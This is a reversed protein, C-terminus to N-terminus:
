RNCVQEKFISRLAYKSAPDTDKRKNVRKAWSCITTCNKFLAKIPDVQFCKKKVQIKASLAKSKQLTPYIQKVLDLNAYKSFFPNKNVLEHLLAASKVDENEYGITLLDIAALMADDSNMLSSDTIKGDILLTAAIDCGRSPDSNCGQLAFEYSTDFEEKTYEQIALKYAVISHELCKNTLDDYDVDFDDYDNKNYELFDSYDQCPLRHNLRKEIFIKVSDVDKRAIKLLQKMSKKAVKLDCKNISFKQAEQITEIPINLVDNNKTAYNLAECNDFISAIMFENALKGGGKMSSLDKIFSKSYPIKQLSKIVRPTILEGEHEHTLLDLRYTVYFKAIIESDITEWDIYEIVYAIDRYSQAFDYFKKNAILNIELGLEQGVISANMPNSVIFDMAKKFHKKPNNEFKRLLSAIDVDENKELSEILQSAYKKSRPFGESGNNWWEYAIPQAIPDGAEAALACAANNGGSTKKPKSFLDKKSSKNEISGCFSSDYGYKKIQKIFTEKQLTNAKNKFDPIKAVLPMLDIDKVKLMRNSALLFASTQGNDFAKLFYSSANGDLYNRAICRGVKLFNKKNKKNYRVCSKKSIEGSSAIRLTTVKKSCKSSGRLKECQEYYALAKSKNESTYKGDEYNEALFMVSKLYDAKASLKIFNIGKSINEKASGRGDVLIKGIIFSSEPDGALADAYGARYASDYSKENFLKSVNGALLLKPTIFIFILIVLLKKFM